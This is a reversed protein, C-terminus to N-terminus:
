RGRDDAPAAPPLGAEGLVGGPDFLVKVSRMLEAARPGVERRLHDRKVRGVGHEGTITGGLELGLDLLAAFVENAAEVQAPDTQDYVITPHLNGDGLHGFSAVVLGSEAALRQTGRVLAPLRPVPVCVDDLLATGCREMAPYAVKRARLLDAAEAQDGTAFVEHAGCGRLLSELAAADLDPSQVFVTAAADTDLGLGLWEEVARATVQDILECLAPVTRARVLAEAVTVAGDLSAFFGVATVVPAPAPVLRLTVATIVGLSGESGVVLGTLDLGAVGKRTRHGLRVSAGDPLVLDLGLVYDRTVGYRVCCLGGANTAVNGGISSIDASAPDPPYWLGLPALAQKLDLNLLGPQVDVTLAAEDVDIISAMKHLALVVCGDEANSGGALGSGAGRVVVRAGRRSAQTLVATVDGADRAVVVAAPDGAAASPAHDRAYAATVALDTLVPLGPRLSALDEVVQRAAPGFPTATVVPVSRRATAGRPDTM